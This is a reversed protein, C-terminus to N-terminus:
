IGLLFKIAEALNEHRFRYGSSILKQSSVRTSSLLVERGMKGFALLILWAPITLLAPRGLVRALTRVFDKNLVPNPAAINVPGSINTDFLIHDIAGIVDEM